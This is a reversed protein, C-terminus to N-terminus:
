NYHVEEAWEIPIAVVHYLNLAYHLATPCQALAQALAILHQEEPLQNPCFEYHDIGDLSLLYSKVPVGGPFAQMLPYLPCEPKLSITRATKPDAQLIPTSMNKCFNDLSTLEPMLQSKKIGKPLQM